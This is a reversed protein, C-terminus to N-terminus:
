HVMVRSLIHMDMCVRDFAKNVDLIKLIVNTLQFVLESTNM